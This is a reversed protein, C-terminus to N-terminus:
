YISYSINFPFSLPSFLLRLLAWLGVSPSNEDEGHYLPSMDPDSLDSNKVLIALSMVLNLDFDAPMEAPRDHVSNTRATKLLLVDRELMNCLWDPFVYSVNTM